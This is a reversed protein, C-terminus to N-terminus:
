SGVNWGSDGTSDFAHQNTEISNRKLFLTNWFSGM